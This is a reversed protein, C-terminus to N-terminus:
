TSINIDFREKINEKLEKLLLDLIDQAAQNGERLEFPGGVSGRKNISANYDRHNRFAVKYRGELFVIEINYAAENEQFIMAGFYNVLQIEKDKLIKLKIRVKEDYREKSEWYETTKIHNLLDKVNDYINRVTKTIEDDKKVSPIKKNKLQKKEKNKDRILGIKNEIRGLRELEIEIDANKLKHYSVLLAELTLDIRDQSDDAYSKTIKRLVEHVSLNGVEKIEKLVKITESYINTRIRDKYEVNSLQNLVEILISFDRIRGRNKDFYLYKYKNKLSISFIDNLINEFLTRLLNPLLVYFKKDYAISNILGVFSEYHLLGVKEFDQDIFKKEPVILEEKNFLQNYQNVKFDVIKEAVPILSPILTKYIYSGHDYHNYNGSNWNQPFFDYNIKKIVELFDLMEPIFLPDSLIEETLSYEKLIEEKPKNLQNQAKGYRTVTLMELYERIEKQMPEWYYKIEDKWQKRLYDLDVKEM